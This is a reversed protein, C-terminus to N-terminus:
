PNRAKTDLLEAKKGKTTELSSAAIIAVIAIPILALNESSFLDLISDILTAGQQAYSLINLTPYDDFFSFYIGMTFYYATATAIFTLGIARKIWKSSICTLPLLMTAVLSTSFFFATINKYSGEAIWGWFFELVTCYGLLLWYLGYPSRKLKNRHFFLAIAPFFVFIFVSPITYLILAVTFVVSVARKNFNGSFSQVAFYLACSAFFSLLAYAWLPLAISLTNKSDPEPYWQVGGLVFRLTPKLIGPEPSKYSYLSLIHAKNRDSEIEYWRNSSSAQSSRNFLGVTAKYRFPHTEQKEAVFWHLSPSPKNEAIFLPFLSLIKKYKEGRQINKIHFAPLEINPFKLDAWYHNELVYNFKIILENDSEPLNLQSLNYRHNFWSKKSGDIQEFLSRRGDKLLLTGDSSYIQFSLRIGSDLKQQTIYEGNFVLENRLPEFSVNGSISIANSSYELDSLIRDPTTEELKVLQLNNTPGLKHEQSAATIASGFILLFSAVQIIALPKM